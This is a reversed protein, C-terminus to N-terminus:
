AVRKGTDVMSAIHLVTKCGRIAISVVSPDTISGVIWENVHSKIRSNDEPLAWRVDNFVDLVIIETVGLEKRREYLLEV